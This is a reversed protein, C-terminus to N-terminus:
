WVYLNISGRDPRSISYLVSFGTIKIRTIYIVLTLDNNLNIVYCMDELTIMYLCLWCEGALNVM